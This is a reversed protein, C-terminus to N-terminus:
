GISKKKIDKESLDVQDDERNFIYYRVKYGGDAITSNVKTQDFKM